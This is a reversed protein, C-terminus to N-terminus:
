SPARLRWGCHVGPEHLGRGLAATKAMRREGLIKIVLRWFTWCGFGCVASFLFHTFYYTFLACAQRQAGDRGQEKKLCFVGVAFFAEM